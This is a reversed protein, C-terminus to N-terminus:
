LSKFLDVWRERFTPDNLPCDEPDEFKKYLPSNWLRAVAAALPEKRVNGFAVPFYTCPVVDGTATVDVKWRNFSACVFPADPRNVSSLVWHASEPALLSRLVARDEATLVAGPESDWGGARMPSLIRLRAGLEGALAVMRAARGDRLREKTACFSVDVPVGRGRLARVADAAKSWLRPIGREADHVEPSPDDLSVAASTLGAAALAAARGDDMLLGNSTLTARMGHRRACRVLEPLGERLLPEGGFFHVERAGLRAAEAIVGVIEGDSLEPEPSKRADLVACRSCKAQCRGTVSLMLTTGFLPRRLRVADVLADRLSRAAKGIM